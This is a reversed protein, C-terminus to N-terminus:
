RRHHHVFAPSDIQLSPKLREQCAKADLAAASTGARYRRNSRGQRMFPLVNEQLGQEYRLLARGGGLYAVNRLASNKDFSRASDGYAGCNNQLPIADVNGNCGHPRVTSTAPQPKVFRDRTGVQGQQASLRRGCSGFRPLILGDHNGSSVRHM